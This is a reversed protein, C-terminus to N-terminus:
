SFNILYISGLAILLFLNVALSTGLLLHALFKFDKRRCFPFLLIGNILIVILSLAPIIYLGKVGGILDVGFDINYHLVVLDQSVDINILYVAMWIFLNFGLLIIFYLRVFLFSSLYSFGDFSKQRLLYYNEHFKSLDFM